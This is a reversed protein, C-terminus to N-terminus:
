VFRSEGKPKWGNLYDRVAMRPKGAPQLSEPLIYGDRCAIRLVSGEVTAEGIRSSTGAAAEFRAAYIKVDTSRLVTGDAAREELTTWAGPYPALGRILRVIREGEAGFDIRCTEKFIKPAPKLEGAPLEPQPQPRFGESVVKAVSETVLAAGVAMLKDHLSGVNDEPLIAM